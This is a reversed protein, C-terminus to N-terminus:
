NLSRLWFAALDRPIHGKAVHYALANTDITIQGDDAHIKVLKRNGKGKKRNKKMKKEM